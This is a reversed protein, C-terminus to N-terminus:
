ILGWLAVVNQSEGPCNTTLTHRSASVLTLKTGSTSDKRFTAKYVYSTSGNDYAWGATCYISDSRVAMLGAEAISNLTVMLVRYRNLNSM